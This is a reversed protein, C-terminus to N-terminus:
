RARRAADASRELIMRRARDYLRNGLLRKTADLITARLRSAPIVGTEVMRAIATASVSETIAFRGLRFRDTGPGNPVSRSDAVTRYGVQRAVDAVRESWRGGPCSFHVVDTGTIDSLKERSRVLEERLHDDDLDSVYAHTMSHSGIEFGLRALEAVQAPRMFGPNGLFGVTVYFTAGFGAELLAPAAVGLDSACGDDFTIVIDRSNEPGPFEGVRLGRGGAAAIAAIHGRLLSETLVYRAYGAGDRAPKAGPALVEHYMLFPTAREM